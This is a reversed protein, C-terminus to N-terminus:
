GIAAALSSWGQELAAATPVSGQAMLPSGGGRGGAAELLPKLAPGAKIPAEPSVCLLITPPETCLAAFVTGGGCAAFAQAEARLDDDMPGKAIERLHVRLGRTNAATAAHLERGRIAALEGSLRRALKEAEALRDAQAAMLSPTQDLPSSLRRAVASLADFDARAREIARRGCLFEIRLNGRIKDLKRIFIPGIEATSAVHTGGCASRDLEAISVVRITGERDSPKRLGLKEERSDHYSVTVPRNEFILENARREAAILRAADFQQGGGEVDITAADVGLHFSVTPLKFESDLVASLLHQGTHQQMHDFRRPWDIECAHWGPELARDVIHAVRDEEDVVDLVRAPGIAGTDFPQGGSTPYFGTRDLYIKLPDAGTASATAQFRRLYSDDYYLRHLANDSSSM